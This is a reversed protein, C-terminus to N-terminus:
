SVFYFHTVGALGFNNQNQVYTENEKFAEEVRQFLSLIQGDDSQLEADMTCLSGPNKGGGYCSLVTFSLFLCLVLGLYFILINLGTDNSFCTIWKSILCQLFSM